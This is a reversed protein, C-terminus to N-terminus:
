ASSVSTANQWQRGSRPSSPSLRPSLGPSLRASPSRSLPTLCAKKRHPQTCSLCKGCRLSAPTRKRKLGGRVQGRDPADPEMRLGHDREVADYIQAVTYAKGAELGNLCWTHETAKLVIETNM